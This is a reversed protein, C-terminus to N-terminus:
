NQVSWEPLQSPLSVPGNNIQSRAIAHCLVVDHLGDIVDTRPPRKERISAELEFLERKFAEEYSVTEVTRWSHATGPIGGDIFVCPTGHLSASFEEATLPATSILIGEAWNDFLTEIADGVGRPDEGADIVVLRYGRERLQQQAGQVISAYFPHAVHPIILGITHSRSSRLSKAFPSPRFGLRNAVAVV